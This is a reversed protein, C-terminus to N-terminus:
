CDRRITRHYDFLYFVFLTAFLILVILVNLNYCLMGNCINCKITGDDAYEINSVIDDCNHCYYQLEEEEESEPLQAM